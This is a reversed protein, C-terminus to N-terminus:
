GKDAEHFTMRVKLRPTDSAFPAEKTIDIRNLKHGKQQQTLITSIMRAALSEPDSPPGKITEFNEGEAVEKLPMGASVEGELSAGFKKM